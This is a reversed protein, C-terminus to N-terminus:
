KVMNGMMDPNQMMSAMQNFVIKQHFYGSEPTCYYAKRQKVSSEPLYNAAKRVKASRAVASGHKFDAKIKELCKNLDVEDSSREKSSDCKHELMTGRLTRHSILAPELIPNSQANLVKTMYFRLYNVLFMLIVMPLFVNDRIRPDIFLQLTM